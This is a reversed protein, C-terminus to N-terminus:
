SRPPADHVPESCRICGIGSMHGGQSNSSGIGLEAMGMCDQLQVSTRTAHLKGFLSPRASATSEQSLPSKISSFSQQSMLKQKEKARLNGSFGHFPFMKVHSEIEM